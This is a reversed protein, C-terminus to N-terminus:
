EPRIGAFKAVKAWKDTEEAILEAFGAPSAPVPRGGLELLRAKVRADALAVNIEANLKEVIEAPTSKPAGIGQLTSAEFGPVFDSVTPVNLLAESRMTTTVALPHLKGARIHGISSPMISFMLQVQGGILDTLAPAEGRYPVHVVDVGTMMRFLEGAVHAVSGNGASAMSVKGPNARAYAIFQPVTKAPFSPPVAMVLSVRNISAVPAIDSIFTFNLKEYLAPNTVNAATVLLLTYGDAPARVVAETGVNGAAGVRNEIVFPQGLQESLQQGLLRALIDATGGAAFPVIIRVARVPYAQAKATHSLASSAAAGAALYLAQRRSLSMTKVM